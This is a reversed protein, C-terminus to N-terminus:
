GRWGQYGVEKMQDLGIGVRQRAGRGPYDYARILHEKGAEREEWQISHGLAKADRGEATAEESQGLQYHEPLHANYPTV